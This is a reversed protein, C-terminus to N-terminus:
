NRQKDLFNIIDKKRVKKSNLFFNYGLKKVEANNIYIKFNEKKFKFAKKLDTFDEIFFKPLNFKVASNPYWWCGGTIKIM